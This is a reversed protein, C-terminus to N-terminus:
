FLEYQTNDIAWEMQNSLLIESYTYTYVVIRKDM